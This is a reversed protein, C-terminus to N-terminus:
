RSISRGPPVRRLRRAGARPSRRRRAAPPACVSPASGCFPFDQGKVCCDLGADVSERLRVCGVLRPAHHFRKQVTGPLAATLRRRAGSNGPQEIMNTILRVRGGVSAQKAPRRPRAPTRGLCADSGDEQGDGVIPSPRVGAGVAAGPYARGGEVPDGAFADQKGIAEGRVGFARGAARADQGSSVTPLELLCGVM